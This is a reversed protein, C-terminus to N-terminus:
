GLDSDGYQFNSFQVGAETLRVDRGLDKGIIDVQIPKSIFGYILRSFSNTMDKDIWMSLNEVEFFKAVCIRALPLKLNDLKPEFFLDKSYLLLRFGDNRMQKHFFLYGFIQSTKKEKIEIIEYNKDLNEVFRSTIWQETNSLQLFKFSDRNTSSVLDLESDSLESVKEMKYSRTTLWSIALTSLFYVKYLGRRIASKRFIPHSLTPSSIRWTAGGDVLRFTMRKLWSLKAQQNPVGYVFQIGKSRAIDLCETALRGFISKNLYDEFSSTGPYMTRFHCNRRFNPSTFTDGIEVAHITQKGLLLEKQIISCTGVVKEQYIAVALWGPSGGNHSCMKATFFEVTMKKRDDSSFESNFFDVAKSLIDVHSGDTTLFELQRSTSDVLRSYKIVM